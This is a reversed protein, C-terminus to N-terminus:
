PQIYVDSTFFRYSKVLAVFAPYTNEFGGNDRSTLVLMVVAKPSDIYAVAETNRFQDGSFKLV